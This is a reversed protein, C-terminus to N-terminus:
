WLPISSANSPLTWIETQSFRGSECWLPRVRKDAEPNVIEAAARGGYRIGTLASALTCRPPPHREGAPSLDLVLVGRPKASSAIAVFCYQVRYHPRWGVWGRM